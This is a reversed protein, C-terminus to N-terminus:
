GGYILKLLGDDVDVVGGARCVQQQGAVTEGAKRLRDERRDAAVSDGIM